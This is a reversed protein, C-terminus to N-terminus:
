YIIHYKQPFHKSNLHASQEKLQSIDGNNNYYPTILYVISLVMGFETVFKNM